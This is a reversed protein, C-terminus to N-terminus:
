KGWYLGGMRAIPTTSSERFWSTRYMGERMVVLPLFGCIRRL